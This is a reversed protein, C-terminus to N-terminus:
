VAFDNVKVSLTYRGQCQRPLCRRQRNRQWVLKKRVSNLGMSLIMIVVIVADLRFLARSSQSSNLLSALTGLLNALLIFKDACVDRQLYCLFFHVIAWRLGPLQRRVVTCVNLVQVCLLAHLILHVDRSTVGLHQYRVAPLATCWAKYLIRM